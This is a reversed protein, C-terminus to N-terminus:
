IHILSLGVSTWALGQVVGVEPKSLVVDHIYKEKGLFSALNRATIRITSKKEKQKLLNRASKRCLEGIKRELERVGAERTYYQIMNKLASDSISIVEKTLGSKRLQKPVLYKKAINFKENATYSSIEILEMRDLLPRPIESADNATAIFLIKSLDVPIDIYHDIFHMNQESDLVELLAAATDGSHDTGIKDIEDLLMLPNKVKAQKLGDIIRGPMAGVYTRRHGRIEAEDRVGGLCVRVYKKGLAEAISHAISTKGTGPPGILCLIPSDGEKCFARVALFDLIREKVKILGYHQKELVSEAEEIDVIDKSVKDWPLQLLTEIYTRQVASESSSENLKEFRKIEKKIREKTKNSAKLKEVALEFEESESSDEGLETKIFKLQEKLLYEKQNKAIKSKMQTELQSKLKLIELENSIIDTLVNFRDLLDIAELVNQRKTYPIPINMSIHDMLKGLPQLKKFLESIIKEGKPNLKIYELCFTWLERRMAEEQNDNICPQIEELVKVESMFCKEQELSFSIMEARQEGEVFVQLVSESIKSVKKVSAVVGIRYLDEKLPELVDPNKQAILFIKQKTLMAEEVALISKERNIEFHMMIEPMMVIDRLAITPLIVYEM